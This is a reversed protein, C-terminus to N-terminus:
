LSVMKAGLLRLHLRELEERPECWGDEVCSVWGDQALDSMPM